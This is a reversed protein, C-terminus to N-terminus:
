SEERRRAAVHEADAAVPVADPAADAGFLDVPAATPVEYRDNTSSSVSADAAASSPPAGLAVLWDAANRCDGAHAAETSVSPIRMLAFLRQLSADLDADIHDLVADLHAAATM